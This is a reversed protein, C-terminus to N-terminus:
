PYFKFPTKIPFEGEVLEPIDNLGDDCGIYEGNRFIFKFLDYVFLNYYPKEYIKVYEKM